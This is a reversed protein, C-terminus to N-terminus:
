TTVFIQLCFRGLLSDTAFFLLGSQEFLNPLLLYNCVMNDLCYAITFMKCVFHDSYILCYCFHAHPIMWISYAAPFFQRIVQYIPLLIFGCFPSYSLSMSVAATLSRYSVTQTVNLSGCSDLINFYKCRAGM